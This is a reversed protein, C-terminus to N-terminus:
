PPASGRAGSPRPRPRGPHLRRAPGRLCIGRSTAGRSPVSTSAGFRRWAVRPLLISWRPRVGPKTFWAGSPGLRRLEVRISREEMFDHVAKTAGCYTGYDNIIIAGGPRVRDYWRELCLRVSEYWDCDIHLVAVADAESRTFSDRFWGRRVRLRRRPLGLRDWIERVRGVTGRNWGTFYFRRVEEPDEETPPPLGEFSDFLWTERRQESCRAAVSLLAASGGNWAGCEVIHGRVGRLVVAEAIDYMRFLVRPAIMTHGLSLRLCLWAKRLSRLGPEDLVCSPIQCLARLLILTRGGVREEHFFPARWRLWM